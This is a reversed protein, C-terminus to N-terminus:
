SHENLTQSARLLEESLLENPVDASGPQLDQQDPQKTDEHGTIEVKLTQKKGSAVLCFAPPVMSPAGKLRRKEPMQTLKEGM